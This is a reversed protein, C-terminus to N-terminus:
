TAIKEEVAKLIEGNHILQVINDLDPRMFRDHDLAKVKTRIVRYAEEVGIGFSLPRRYELAQSACLLELALVNTTNEIIRSLHRAAITGMSNYDEQNASTPISDVSAPHSLIKNESVLAAATYQCVMMGSNIGTHSSLFPPLGENLAPNLLREIRRESINALGALAIKFFDLCLAVPHGHFNGGSVVQNTESFILPNDTVSNIETEIVRKTYHYADQIAGHVQPICRVSYGDQIRHLSEKHSAVLRSGGILKLIRSATQIQGPHPRVKQIKEDLFQDSSLTAELTMAGAIDAIELLKGSDVLGLAALATMAQTGNILGLGEKAELEIPPLKLHSLGEKGSMRTGRFTVEGQGILPLCLHALPALDGSAGVSGQGPVLPCLNENLFVVLYDLLSGRVGSFGGTLGHLRLLLMARVVDETFYEGVGIAHSLLLNKQLQQNESPQIFTDSLKGFGTTIGYVKKNEKLCNEVVLRSKDLKAPLAPSLSVPAKERAVLAVDQISLPSTGIEITKPLSSNM